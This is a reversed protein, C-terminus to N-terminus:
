WQNLDYSFNLIGVKLWWWLLIKTHDILKLITSKEHGFIM